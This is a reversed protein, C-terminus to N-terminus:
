RPKKKMQSPKWDLFYAPLLNLLLGRNGATMSSTGNCYV